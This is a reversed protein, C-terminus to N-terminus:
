AEHGLWKIELEPHAESKISVRRYLSIDRGSGPILRWDDL